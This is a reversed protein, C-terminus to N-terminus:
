AEWRTSSSGGVCLLNTADTECPAVFTDDEADMDGAGSGLGLSNGSPAVVPIGLEGAAAIARALARAGRTERRRQMAANLLIIDPDEQLAYSRKDLM